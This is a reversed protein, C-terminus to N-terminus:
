MLADAIAEGGEWSIHNGEINVFRLQKDNKMKEGIAIGTERDLKNGEMYICMLSPNHALKECFLQGCEASLDNNGLDLWRVQYNMEIFAAISTSTEPGERGEYELMDDATGFTGDKGIENDSLDLSTLSVNRRMAWFIKNAGDKGLKNKELNLERWSITTNRLGLGIATGVEPGLGCDGLNIYEPVDTSMATILEVASETGIPNGYLNLRKLAQGRVVKGSEKKIELSEALERAVKANM